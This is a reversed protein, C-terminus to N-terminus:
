THLAAPSDAGLQEFPAHPTEQLSPMVRQPPVQTFVFSLTSLQPAQALTQGVGAFPVRSHLSPAQRTFHLTPSLSQPPVQASVFVSGSFQPEQPFAQLPRQTSLL